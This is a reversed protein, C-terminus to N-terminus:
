PTLGASAVLFHNAITLASYISLYTNDVPIKSALRMKVQRLSFARQAVGTPTATRRSM